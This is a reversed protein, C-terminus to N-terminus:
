EHDKNIGACMGKSNIVSTATSSVLFEILRCAATVDEANATVAASFVTVHQLDSPLEGVLDIGPVALIEAIQQFGIEAEGSAVADGVVVVGGAGGGVRKIKAELELTMGLRDFVRVLHNGSPSGTVPDAIAISKADRLTRKFSEVSGIDPRVAGARVAVGIASRAVDTATGPVIKHHRGLEDIALSTTIVIDAREGDLVRRKVEGSGAFRAAVPRGSLRELTSMLEDLVQHMAGACLIRTASIQDIPPSPHMNLRRSTRRLLSAQGQAGVGAIAPHLRARSSGAPNLNDM